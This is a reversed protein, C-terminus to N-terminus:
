QNTVLPPFDPLPPFNMGEIGPRNDFIGPFGLQMAVGYTKNGVKGDPQLDHLKQFAITAELTKPGFEGDITGMYLKQGRLFAQWNEVPTGTSNIKIFQLAEM